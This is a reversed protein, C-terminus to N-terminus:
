QAMISIKAIDCFMIGQFDPSFKVFFFKPLDLVGSM